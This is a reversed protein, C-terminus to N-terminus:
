VIKIPSDNLADSLARMARRARIMTEALHPARQLAAAKVCSEWQESSSACLHSLQTLAAASWLSLRGDM